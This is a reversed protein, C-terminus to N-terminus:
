RRREKGHIRARHPTYSKTHPEQHTARTTHSKTHPEQRTARPTHSKAHPEQQTARTTHSKAHPEQPTARPTHSATARLPYHLSALEVGGHDGGATGAGGWEGGYANYGCSGDMTM